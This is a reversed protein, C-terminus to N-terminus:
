RVPVGDNTRNAIRLHSLDSPEMVVVDHGRQALRLAATLGLVGAGIVGYRM